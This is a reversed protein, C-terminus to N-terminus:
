VVTAAQGIVELTEDILAETHVGSVFWAEFQSPAVYVGGDLLAHFFRAFASTDCAKAESYNTVPKNAFFPTVLSGIQQVTVPVGVEKLADNLGTALRQGLLDLSSYLAEAEEQIHSLMAFGAAMALPNGSLTGAQYVPGNPALQEMLDRRGGYAACPVGGGIIKGFCTIDPQVGYIGQAGATGLRFGTIVEDFILVTSHQSTLDRAMQLWEVDPLVVGMNAPVPELIFAAIENGYDAFAQSLGAADNFEIVITEAAVGAPVGATAPIGLTAVGSGASVLLADVSGHFCGACKLIKNRGTAGRALRIASTTAESGSNVFRIMDVSPVMHCVLEALECEAATPAGYVTGRDIARHMAEATFSPAHGFLLPGFSMVYDIYRNGDADTIYPGAASEIFPPVGGVSQFARVPSNVGGPLRVSSRDFLERSVIREDASM